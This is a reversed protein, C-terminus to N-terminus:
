DEGLLKKLREREEREKERRKVEDFYSQDYMVQGRTTAEKQTAQYVGGSGYALRPLRNAAYLYALFLPICDVIGMLPVEYGYGVLVCAVTIWAIWKGTVPIVMYVRITHSPNRTCWLITLAAIPIEPGLLPAFVRTASMGVWNGLAGALTVAFWFGAMKSPSLDREVSRGIWYLWIMLFISGVLGRGTEILPAWPYTLLTWPKAIGAGAYGIFEIGQFKNISLYLATLGLSIVLLTTVASGERRSWGKFDEIMGM